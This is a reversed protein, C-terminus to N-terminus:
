RIEFDLNSLAPSVFCSIGFIRNTEFLEDNLMIMEYQNTLEFETRLITELNKSIIVFAPKKGYLARFSEIKSNIKGLTKNIESISYEFKIKM